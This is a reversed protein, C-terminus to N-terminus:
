VVKLGIFQSLSLRIIWLPPLLLLHVIASILFIMSLIWVVSMLTFGLNAWLWPGAGAILVFAIFIGLLLLIPTWAKRDAVSPFMTSSIVFIIYFWIWFDPQELVQKIASLKSLTGGISLNTWLDTFQLHVLGAYAVFISGAILPAVGILSDRLFDTSSTKVYGLRLRGDSMPQPLLSIRSVPVRLLRAMLYHSTEHILVGPLFLISFLTISLDVRKILLLLIAQVEFHLRRQFIALGIVAVLFWGLSNFEDIV